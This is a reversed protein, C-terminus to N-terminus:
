EINDLKKIVRKEKFADILEANNTFNGLWFTASGSLADSSSALEKEVGNTGIYNAHIFYTRGRVQEIFGVHSSLGVIYLGDDMTQMRFLFKEFDEEVWYDNFCLTKVIDSSYMKAIDYRNLNFGVHKLTTSVFYGCAVVGENPVDTYGNFDWPTGYWFPFISNVLEEHLTVECSDSNRILSESTLCQHSYDLQSYSQLSCVLFVYLYLFKM